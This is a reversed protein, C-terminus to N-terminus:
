KAASVPPISARFECSPCTATVSLLREEVQIDGPHLYFSLEMDKGLFAFCRPCHEKGLVPDYRALQKEARDLARREADRTDMTSRTLSETRKEDRELNRRRNDIERRVYNALAETRPHVPLNSVSM